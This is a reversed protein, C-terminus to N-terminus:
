NPHMRLMGLSPIEENTLRDRIVVDLEFNEIIQGWENEEQASYVIAGHERLFQSLQTRIQWDKVLMGIRAKKMAM